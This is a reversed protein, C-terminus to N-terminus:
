LNPSYDIISVLYNFDNQSNNKKNQIISEVRKKLNKENRFFDYGCSSFYFYNDNANKNYRSALRREDFEKFNEYMRNELLFDGLMFYLIIHISILTILIKKLM